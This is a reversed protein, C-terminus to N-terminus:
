ARPFGALYRQYSDESLSHYKHIAHYPHNKLFWDETGNSVKPCNEDLWALAISDLHLQGDHTSMTGDCLCCTIKRAGHHFLGM